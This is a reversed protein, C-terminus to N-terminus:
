KKTKDMDTKFDYGAIENAKDWCRQANYNDNLEAYSNGLYYFAMDRFPTKNDALYELFISICREYDKLMYKQIGINYLNNITPQLEWVKEAYKLSISDEGMDGYIVGLNQYAVADLSDLEIAKYSDSFAGITDGLEYKTMGRNTYFKGENPLLIIASDYLPLAKAPNNQLSFSLGSNYLEHARISDQQEQKKEFNCGILSIFILIIGLYKM